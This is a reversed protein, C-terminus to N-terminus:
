LRHRRVWQEKTMEWYVSNRKSGDPRTVEREGMRVRGSMITAFGNIAHLVTSKGAGNPGILCLSQGAGVALSLGHLIEMAGYGAVLDEIALLPQGSALAAIEAPSPGAAALGAAAEEVAEVSMVVDVTGLGYGRTTAARAM